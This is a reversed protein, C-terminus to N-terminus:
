RTPAVHRWRRLRVALGLLFVGTLLAYLGVLRIALGAAWAPDALLVWAFGLSMAGVIALPWVHAIVGRLRVALALEAAGALVMWAAFMTVVVVTVPEPWWLLAAICALTAGAFALFPWATGGARAVRQGVALATGATVAAYGALLALLLALTLEPWTLACLGLAIAAVGRVAAALWGGQRTADHLASPATPGATAPADLRTTTLM